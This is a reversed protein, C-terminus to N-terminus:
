KEVQLVEKIGVRVIENVPQYIDTSILERNKEEGGEFVLRYVKVKYGEEGKQIQRRDGKALNPDPHELLSPPIIEVNETVIEVNRVPEKKAGFLSLTVSDDEVRGALMVPFDRNNRIKLDLLGYAVTADQGLPVYSVPRSHSARQVIELEARLAALYLTTAAQCIGGGIGPVLRKNQLVPAELYGKEKTAQGVVENFSFTEGPEIVWGTLAAIALKINHNRNHSGNDLPTESSALCRTFDPLDETAVEPLIDDVQLPICALQGQKLYDEIVAMSEAINLKAGPKEKLYLPIGNKIVLCADEPERDIYQCLAELERQLYHSSVALPVELSQKYPLWRVTNFIRSWSGASPSTTVAKDVVEDILYEYTGSAFSITFNSEGWRLTIASPRSLERHLKEKADVIDLGDLSIGSVETGPYIKKNHYYYYAAGVGGLISVLVQSLLILILWMKHYGSM